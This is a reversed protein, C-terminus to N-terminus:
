FVSCVFVGMDVGCVRVCVCVCLVCLVGLISNEFKTKNVCDCDYDFKISCWVNFFSCGFITTM